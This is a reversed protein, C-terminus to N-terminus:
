TPLEGIERLFALLPLLPLGLITFYDGEVQEFLQLGEAEMHYCGVSGLVSAGHSNIYHSLFQDSFPRMTLKATSVHTFLVQDAKTVAVASHLHHVRGRLAMLTDRVDALSKAKHRISGDIELVQDAGIVFAEVHSGAVHRAKETALKRALEHPALAAHSAQAAREDYTSVVATVTAGAAHLLKLRVPSQSALVLM